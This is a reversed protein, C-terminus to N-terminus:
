TTVTRKFKNFGTILDWEAIILIIIVQIILLLNSLPLALSWNTRLIEKSTFDGLANSFIDFGGTDHAQEESM